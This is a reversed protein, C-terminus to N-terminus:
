KKVKPVVCIFAEGNRKRTLLNETEKDAVRVVIERSSMIAPGFRPRPDTKNAVKTIYPTVPRYLYCSGVGRDPIKCEARPGEKTEFFKARFECRYCLGVM